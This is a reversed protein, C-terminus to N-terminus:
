KKTVYSDFVRVKSWLSKNEAIFKEHRPHPAYKEYAAKNEFVLHLAVQFGQDNVERKLDKALAGVSFYVVGDHGGLYKECGEILKQQNEPTDSALTFYVMHALQPEAASAYGTFLAANLLVFLFSKM